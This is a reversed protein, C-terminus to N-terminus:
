AEDTARADAPRPAAHPGGNTLSLPAPIRRKAKKGSPQSRDILLGQDLRRLFNVVLRTANAQRRKTRRPTM